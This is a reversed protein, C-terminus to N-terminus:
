EEKWRLRFATQFPVKPEVFEVATELRRAILQVITLGLGTGGLGLRERDVALASGREFPKFLRDADGLDVGTGIDEVIVSRQRGDTETRISVLPEKAELMANAANFFLNQFVASWDSFYGPPLRFSDDVESTDIRLGPMLAESQTAVRRVVRRLRLRRPPRDDNEGALQSFLSRNARTQRAWREILQVAQTREASNLDRRSLIEAVQDMLTLLQSAEHEYAVAAIGATALAGLLSTTRALERDEARTAEVAANVASVVEDRTEPPLEDALREFIEEVKELQREAPVIPQTEEREKFTRRAEENAYLDIGFRVVRILQSFAQNDVLRDRTLQISLADRQRGFRKAWRREKSTNVRVVGFLRENTPLFQLAETVKIEEPLLKSVSLRRGADRAVNLWDSDAGYYPLRFGADYIGAGGFQRLYLRADKVGIGHPQRNRLAFVRVEYTLSEIVCDNIVYETSVKAGNAFELTVLATRSPLPKIRKQKSAGRRLKSPEALQCHVRASWLDLVAGMQENFVLAAEEDPHVLEIKFDSPSDGVIAFPPQLTWLERALSQLADKDWDHHLNRLVIRTGHRSNGPLESVAENTHYRAVATTLDTSEVAEDWNVTATMGSLASKARTSLELDGALLQVALRGVGKSGTLPRKLATSTKASDKHPSGIRMWFDRFSDFDMGAGNDSVEIFDDGFVIRVVTADADYSNKVLEALAIYPRGVLREGLERLLAADVTFNIETM